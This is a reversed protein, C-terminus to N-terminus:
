SKKPKMRSTSRSKSVDFFGDTVKFPKVLVQTNGTYIILADDHEFGSSFNCYLIYQIVIEASCNELYLKIDVHFGCIFM